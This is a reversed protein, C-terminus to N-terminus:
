RPRSSPADAELTLDFKPPVSDSFFQARIRTLKSIHHTVLGAKLIAM